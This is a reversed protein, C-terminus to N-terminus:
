AWRNASSATMSCTSTPFECFEHGLGVRGALCIEYPAATCFVETLGIIRVLPWAPHNM